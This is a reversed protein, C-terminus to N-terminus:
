TLYPQKSTITTQQQITLFIHTQSQKTKHQKLSMQPCIQTIIYVETRLAVNLSMQDNQDIQGIPNLASIM